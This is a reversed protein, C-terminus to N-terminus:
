AIERRDTDPMMPREILNTLKEISSALRAMSNEMRELREDLSMVYEVMNAKIKLKKEDTTEYEVFGRSKDWWEDGIKLVGIKDILEVMDRDEEPLAYHPYENMSPLSLSGGFNRTFWASCNLGREIAMDNLSKEGLAIPMEITVCLEKLNCIRFSARFDGEVKDFFIFETGSAKWRKGDPIRQLPKIIEFYLRIYHQSSGRHYKHVEGETPKFVLVGKKPSTPSIAVNFRKDHELLGNKM